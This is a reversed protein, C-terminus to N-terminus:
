LEEPTRQKLFEDPFVAEPVGIIYVVRDRVEGEAHLTRPPVVVKDGPGVPHREGSEVDLFSTEGEVIYGHVEESHWHVALGPSPGSVFTTPWFGSAKLDDLVEARNKFFGKYIQLAM